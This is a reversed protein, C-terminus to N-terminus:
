YQRSSRYSYLERLIALRATKEQWNLRWICNILKSQPSRDANRRGKSTGWRYVWSVYRKKFRYLAHAVYFKSISESMRHSEFIAEWPYWVTGILLDPSNQDPYFRIDKVTGLGALVFDPVTGRTFRRVNHRAGNVRSPHRRDQGLTLIPTTAIARKVRHPPLPQEHVTRKKFLMEWLATLLKEGNEGPDSFKTHQTSWYPLTSFSMKTAFSVSQLTMHCKWKTDERGVGGRIYVENLLPLAAVIPKLTESLM